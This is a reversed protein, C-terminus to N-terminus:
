VLSIVDQKKYTPAWDIAAVQQVQYELSPSVQAAMRARLEHCEEPTLLREAVIELCILGESVQVIRCEQIPAVELL